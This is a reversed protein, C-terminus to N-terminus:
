GQTQSKKLEYILADAYEVAEKASIEYIRRGMDTICPFVAKAIEYRRQEWDIVKHPVLESTDPKAECIEKGAEAKADWEEQSCFVDQAQACRFIRPEGNDDWFGVVGGDGDYCVRYTEGRTFDEGFPSRGRYVM